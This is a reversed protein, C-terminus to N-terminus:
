NSQQLLLKQKQEKLVNKILKFLQTKFVKYKKLFLDINKSFWEHDERYTAEEKPQDISDVIIKLKSEHVKVLSILKDTRKNLKSLKDVFEKSKEFHKPSILQLTYLKILDDFFLGEDKIFELESLWKKTNRHMYEANLWKIDQIQKNKTKM